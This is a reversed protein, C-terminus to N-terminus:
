MPTTSAVNLKMTIDSDSPGGSPILIPSSHINHAACEATDTSSEFIALDTHDSTARRERDRWCCVVGTAIGAASIAGLAVVGILSLTIILQSVDQQDDYSSFTGNIDGTRISASVPSLSIIM